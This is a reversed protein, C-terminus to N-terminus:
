VSRPLTRMLLASFGRTGPGGMAGPQLGPLLVVPGRQLPLDSGVALAEEVGLLEWWHLLGSVTDRLYVGPVGVALWEAVM